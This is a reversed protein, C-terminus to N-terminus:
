YLSLLDCGVRYVSDSAVVQYRWDMVIRSGDRSPRRGRWSRVPWGGFIALSRRDWHREATARNATRGTRGATAGSLRVPYLGRKRSRPSRSARGPGTSRSSVPATRRHSPSRFRSSRQAPISGANRGHSPRTIAQNCWWRGGCGVPPAPITITATRPRLYGKGGRSASMSPGGVDPSPRRDTLSRVVAPSRETWPGEDTRDVSPSSGVRRTPSDRNSAGSDEPRM